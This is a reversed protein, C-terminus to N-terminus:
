RVVLVPLTSHTLVKQTESGLVLAGIGRRGHSAMVLLEAGIRQATELIGKYPHTATARECFVDIAGNVRAIATADAFLRAAIAHTQKEFEDSNMVPVFPYPTVALVQPSYPEAVWILSLKAALAKALEAGSAVARASLEGGDIAVAIHKYL